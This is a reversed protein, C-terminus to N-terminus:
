TARGGHCNGFRRGSGCFCPADPATERMLRDVGGNDGPVERALSRFADLRREYFAKWGDCLVSPGQEARMRPCDGSCLMLYPCRACEGPWRSKQAAFQTACPTRRAAAIGRELVSGLELHPEVFFDCPYISGTHEVVVYSSCTGAMTCQAYTGHALAQLISDFLRVSVRRTDDPYWSEFLENLFRGWQEGTIAFPLRRSHGDFEVLPIYQHWLLELEDRLYSYVVAAKDVNLGNVVTLANVEAGAAKLRDLGRLVQAHTAGGFASTRYRDHIHPPGDISIGVLFRYDALFEAFEDTILTGNTQIGNTIRAGRPALKQQLEVVLKFFDLGMLTPEGGQWAFTYNPQPTSFYSELMATLTEESMRRRGRSPFLDCKELYFCYDCRLNCEGSAPKILLSFPGGTAQAIPRRTRRSVKPKRM